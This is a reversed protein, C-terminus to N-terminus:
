DAFDTISGKESKPLKSLAVVFLVIDELLRTVECGAAAADADAL